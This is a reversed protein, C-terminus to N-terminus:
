PVEIGEARVKAALEAPLPEGAAPRHAHRVIEELLEHLRVSRELGRKVEESCLLRLDAIHELSPPRGDDWEVGVVMSGPSHRIITGKHDGLTVREGRWSNGASAGRLQKAELERLLRTATDTKGDKEDTDSM